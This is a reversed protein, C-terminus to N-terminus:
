MYKIQVASQLHLNNTIPEETIHKQLQMIPLKFRNLIDDNM